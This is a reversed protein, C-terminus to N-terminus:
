ATKFFRIIERVQNLFQSDETLQSIANRAERLIQEHEVTNKEKFQELLANLRAVEQRTVTMQKQQSSIWSNPKSLDLKYDLSKLTNEIKQFRNCLTVIDERPYKIEGRISSLRYALYQYARIAPRLAMLLLTAGSSVYGVASIGAAALGYLGLGSLLHLAIAVILAGRQVKRVYNVQKVEIAIGKEQSTTAEVLVEKADFYVNWPVTIIVILWWFSGVGIVWDILSGAPINLWQLIAFALLVLLGSGASFSFYWAYRAAM